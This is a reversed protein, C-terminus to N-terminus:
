GKWPLWQPPLFPHLVTYAGLFLAAVLAVGFLVSAVWIGGNFEREEAPPPPVALLPPVVDKERWVDRVKRQAPEAPHPVIPPEPPRAKPVTPRNRAPQPEAERVRYIEPEDGGGNSKNATGQGERMSELLHEAKEYPYSRRLGAVYNRVDPSKVAEAYSGYPKLMHHPNHQLLRNRLQEADDRLGVTFAEDAALVLFRDRLQAEGRQESREALERYLRLTQDASPM